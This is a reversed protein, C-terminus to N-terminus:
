LKLPSHRGNHSCVSRSWSKRILFPKRLFFLVFCLLIISANYELEELTRSFYVLTKCVLRSYVLTEYRSPFTKFLLRYWKCPFFFISLERGSQLAM